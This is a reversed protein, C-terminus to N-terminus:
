TPLGGEERALREAEARSALRLHIGDECDKVVVAGNPLERELKAFDALTIIVRGLDYKSLLLAVIKHWHDRLGATVPHNPNIEGAVPRGADATM